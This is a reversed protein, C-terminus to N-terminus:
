YAVPAVPAASGVVDDAVRDYSLVCALVLVCSLQRGVLLVLGLVLVLAAVLVCSM